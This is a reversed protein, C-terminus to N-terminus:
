TDVKNQLKDFFAFSTDDHRYVHIKNDKVKLRRKIMKYIKTGIGQRRYPRKVYISITWERDNPYWYVLGWAIPYGEDGNVIVVQCNKEHCHNKFDDWILGIDSIKLKRIFKREEKTVESALKYEYSLM